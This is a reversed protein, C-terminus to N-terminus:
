LQMPGPKGKRVPRLHCMERLKAAVKAGKYKRTDEFQIFKDEGSSSRYSIVLYLREKRSPKADASIAGVIAGVGGFLLGGTFARGIVSRKMRMDLQRGHFVDTIQSYRLRAEAKGGVKQKIRLCDKCVMVDYVYGAAMNAHDDALKFFDSIISGRTNFFFGM